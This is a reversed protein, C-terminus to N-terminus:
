QESHRDGGHRDETQLSAPVPRRATVRLRIGGRSTFAGEVELWAPAIQEFLDDSMGAVAEENFVGRNRYQLLYLKLSKTEVIHRHPKYRITLDGFDPQGTIPCLSTFEECRLVVDIDGGTWPILDVHDVPASSRKGLHEPTYNHTTSNNMPGVIM